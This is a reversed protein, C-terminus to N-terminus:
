VQAAFPLSPTVKDLTILADYGQLRESAEIMSRDSTPWIIPPKKGPISSWTSGELFDVLISFVNESGLQSCLYSAATNLISDKIAVTRKSAHINGSLILMPGAVESAQQKLTEAMAYDRGDSDKTRWKESPSDFAFVRANEINCCREIVKFMAESSLGDSRPQMFNPSLALSSRNICEFASQNNELIEFAVGMQQNQAAVISVLDGFLQPIENTGHFEGLFVFKTTTVRKLIESSLHDTKILKNVVSIVLANYLPTLSM